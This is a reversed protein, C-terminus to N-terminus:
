RKKRKRVQHKPVLLIAFSIFILSIIASIIAIKGALDIMKLHEAVWYQYLIYCNIVIIMLRVVNGVTLAKIINITKNKKM